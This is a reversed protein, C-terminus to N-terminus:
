SKNKRFCLIRRVSLAGQAFGVCFQTKLDLLSKGDFVRDGAFDEIGLRM